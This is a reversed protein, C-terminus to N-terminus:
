VNTFASTGLSFHELIRERESLGRAAEATHENICARFVWLAYAMDSETARHLSLISDDMGVSRPYMRV